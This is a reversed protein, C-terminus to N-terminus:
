SDRRERRREVRWERWNEFWAWLMAFPLVTFLTAIGMGFLWTRLRHAEELGRWLVIWLWVAALPAIVLGFMAFGVQIVRDRFDRPWM